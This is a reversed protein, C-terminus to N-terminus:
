VTAEMIGIIGPVKASFDIVIKILMFVTPTFASSKFAKKNLTRFVRDMKPAMAKPM